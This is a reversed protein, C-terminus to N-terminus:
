TGNNKRQNGNPTEKTVMLDWQIEFIKLNEQDSVMNKSHSGDFSLSQVLLCILNEKTVM